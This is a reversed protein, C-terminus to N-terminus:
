HMRGHTAEYSKTVAEVLDRGKDTLRYARRLHNTKAPYRELLLEDQLMRIQWLASKVPLQASRCLRNLLVEEGRREFRFLELLMKWIPELLSRMSAHNGFLEHLKSLEDLRLDVMDSSFKELPEPSRAGPARMSRKNGAAAGPVRASLLIDKIVHVMRRLNIPKTLLDSAGLRFAEIADELVACGSVFIVEPRQPAIAPTLKKVLELGSLEPMKIDVVVVTPRVGKAMLHLAEWPDSAGACVLEVRELSTILEAVTARDDDVVLVDVRSPQHPM